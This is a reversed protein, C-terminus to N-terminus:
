GQRPELQAAIREAEDTIEKAYGSLALLKIANRSRVPGSCIRYDFGYTGNVVQDSFHYMAFTDGLMAQLEADHTTALVVQTRALHRLVAASSAIREITNTGRFIEDILIVHLPGDAGLGTFEQVQKIESFFYSSGESLKDERRIASRVIARPLVAQRALGFGLTQALILNIGVTRIFATKGAMNPGAILAGRDTLSLSNGVANPILPHYIGTVEFRRAEVLEPRCFVPLGSVYSAVAISADLSGVAEFIGVLESRKERLIKLSRLFILVDFLFMMNLYGLIWQTMEPLASRDFVLWGLRKRLGAILAASQRLASLQPLTRPDPLKALEAAVGLLTNISAFGTFHRQIRHGYTASIAANVILLGLTPIILWHFFGIGMLCLVSGVALSRYLWALRPKEPMGGLLLSAVYEAGPRNLRALLMQLRERLNADDRLVDQQRAREALLAPSAPGTRLQHYLMQQGTISRTHDIAAFVEDMALDGWTSDDVTATAKSWRHFLSILSFDRDRELPKGWEKRVQLLQRKQRDGKAVIESDTQPLPDASM